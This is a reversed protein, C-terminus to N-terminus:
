RILVHDEDLLQMKWMRLAKIQDFYQYFRRIEYPTGEIKSLSVARSFFFRQFCM